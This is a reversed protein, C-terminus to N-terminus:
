ASLGFTQEILVISLWIVVILVILMVFILEYLNCVDVFRLVIVIINSEVNYCGIM